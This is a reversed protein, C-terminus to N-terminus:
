DELQIKVIVARNLSLISICTSHKATPRLLVLSDMCRAHNGTNNRFKTRAKGKKLSTLNKYHNPWPKTVYVVLLAFHGSKRFWHKKKWIFLTSSCFAIPSCVPPLHKLPWPNTPLIFFYEGRNKGWVKFMISTFFAASYKLIYLKLINMQTFSLHFPM